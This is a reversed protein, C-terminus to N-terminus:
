QRGAQLMAAHKPCTMANHRMQHTMQSDRSAIKLISVNRMRRVRQKNIAFTICVVSSQLRVSLPQVIM